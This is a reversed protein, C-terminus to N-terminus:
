VPRFGGAGRGGESPVRPHKAEGTAFLLVTDSTSTDSDVTTCNFSGDVGKRLLADLAPAPIKADTCRLVADDGHRARDHRQGQCHRQDEGGYRRDAVRTAAKPLHRHDHYRAGCRGLRRRAVSRAARAPRRDAQRAAASRRDRRHLRRVGAEGSLRGTRGRRCRHGRLSGARRSRYLCQRQGCKGGGGARPRGEAVRSVLRGAGGPLPQQHVRRRRHHAAALELMVLDTRNRYRIGAEAAGLRVGALPPVEALQVALPSVQVDM